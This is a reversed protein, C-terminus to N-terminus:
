EKLKIAMQINIVINIDRCGCLHPCVCVHKCVCTCLCMYVIVRLHEVQDPEKNQCTARCHTTDSERSSCM